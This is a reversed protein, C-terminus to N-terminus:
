KPVGFNFNAGILSPVRDMSLDSPYFTKQSNPNTRRGTEKNSLIEIQSSCILAITNSSSRAVVDYEEDLSYNNIIGFFRGNPNGTLSLATGTTPDFFYRWVSIKSGKVDGNVIQSIATDPIGTITVTIGDSTSKLESKTSTIGVFQGLGLYEESDYTISTNYDSFRITEAPLEIKCILATEVTKYSSLDISM